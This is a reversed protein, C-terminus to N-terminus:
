AVPDDYRKQPYFIVVMEAQPKVRKHDNCDMMSMFDQTHYQYLQKHACRWTRSWTVQQPACTRQFISTWMERPTHPDIAHKAQRSKSRRADICICIHSHTHIYTRVHLHIYLDERM